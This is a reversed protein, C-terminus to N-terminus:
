SEPWHALGLEKYDPASGGVNYSSTAHGMWVLQEKGAVVVDTVGMFQCRSDFYLHADSAETLTPIVIADAILTRPYMNIFQCNHFFATVNGLGSATSWDIFETTTGAAGCVFLCDEFV